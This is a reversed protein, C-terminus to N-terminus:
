EVRTVKCRKVTEWQHEDWVSEVRYTEGGITVLDDPEIDQTDKLKLTYEITAVVRGSQQGIESGIVANQRVALRCAVDSAVASSGKTWGGQGDATETPRAISCTQTLIAQATAKMRAIDASSPTNM